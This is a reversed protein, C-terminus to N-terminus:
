NDDVHSLFFGNVWTFQEGPNGLAYNEEIAKQRKFKLFDGPLIQLLFSFDREKKQRLTLINKFSEIEQQGEPVDATEFTDFGSIDM